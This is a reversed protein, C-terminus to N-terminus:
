EGEFLGFLSSFDTEIKMESFGSYNDVEKLRDVSFQHQSCFPAIGQQKLQRALYNQEYQGPTPIFFAKKGLAALDMISSYGSRCVVLESESMAKELSDTTMFNVITINDLIETTETEELTGRVLLVKKASKQFATMLKEELLTRQPEPGSLLALVDYVINSKVPKLRSLPGIYRLPFDVREPHGLVGSLNPHGEFDPIWCSDFRKIYGQHIKSSFLSETSEATM